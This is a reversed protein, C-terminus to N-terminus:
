FSACVRRQVGWPSVGRKLDCSLSPVAFAQSCEKVSTYGDITAEVEAPPGQVKRRAFATHRGDLVKEGPACIRILPEVERERQSPDAHRWQHRSREIPLPTRHSCKKIPSGVGPSAPIEESSDLRSRTERTVATM